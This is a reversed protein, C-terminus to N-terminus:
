GRKKPEAYTFASDAVPANYRQNSLEVKTRKGQGDIATWGYLKLGGPAASDRIFALILTGFEKHYPDAARVVLVRPDQNPVVQAVHEVDPNASLLLGLPTKNIPWSNKQGVDYDIFTLTSGNGVLLMNVGQGYEFRIRGPRKLELKGTLTQGKSDTQVFNATMSHVSRVHAEVKALDPSMKASAAAPAAIMAVPVLARAIKIPLSM